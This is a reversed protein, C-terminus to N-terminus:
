RWSGRKRRRPISEQRAVASTIMESARTVTPLSLAIVVVICSLRM